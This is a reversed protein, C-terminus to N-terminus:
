LPETENGTKNDSGTADYSDSSLVNVGVQLLHRQGLHDSSGAFDSLGSQHGYFVFAFLFAAIVFTARLASFFKAKTRRRGGSMLTGKTLVM